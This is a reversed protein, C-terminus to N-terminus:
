GSAIIAIQKAFEEAFAKENRKTKNMRKVNAHDFTLSINATKNQYADRKRERERETIPLLIPCNAYDPRSKFNRMKAWHVRLIARTATFAHQLLTLPSGVTSVNFPIFRDVLTFFFERQYKTFWEYYLRIMSIDRHKVLPLIIPRRSLHCNTCLGFFASIYAVICPVDTELVDRGTIDSHERVLSKLSNALYLSREGAVGELGELLHFDITAYLVRIIPKLSIDSLNQRMHLMLLIKFIIILM